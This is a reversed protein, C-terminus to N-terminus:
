QALLRVLVYISSRNSLIKHPIQVSMLEFVKPNFVKFKFIKKSSKQNIHMNKFKNGTIAGSVYGPCM